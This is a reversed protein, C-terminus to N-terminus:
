VITIFEVVSVNKELYILIVIVLGFFGFEVSVVYTSQSLALQRRSTGTM